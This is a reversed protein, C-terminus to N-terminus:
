VKIIITEVALLSENVDDSGVPLEKADTEQHWKSLTTPHPLCSNFMTRVYKYADSSISHLTSAFNRLESSFSTPGATGNTKSMLRMLLEKNHGPIDQLIDKYDRCDKVKCELEDILTKQESIRKQQRRVTQHLAKVKKRIKINSDRVAEYKRKLVPYPLKAEMEVLSICGQHQSPGIQATSKCKQSSVVSKSVDKVAKPTPALAESSAVQDGLVKYPPEVIKIETGVVKISTGRTEQVESSTDQGDSGTKVIEKGDTPTELVKFATGLVKFAHGSGNCSNELGKFDNQSQESTIQAGDIDNADVSSVLLYMQVPIEHNASPESSTEDVKSITVTDLTDNESMMSCNEESNSTDEDQEATQSLRPPLVATYNHDSFVFTTFNTKGDSFTQKPEERLKTDKQNINCKLSDLEPSNTSSDAAPTSTLHNEPLREVDATELNDEEDTALEKFIRNAPPKRYKITKQLYKPYTPFICPIVNERLRVVCLSTRDIDEPRFHISCLRSSQTPTWNKRRIAQIWKKLIEANRPFTHFTVGRSKESRNKCGYAACAVM